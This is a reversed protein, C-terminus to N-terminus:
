YYGSEASTAIHSAFSRVLVIIIGKVLVEITVPQASSVVRVTADMWRDMGRPFGLENLLSLVGGGKKASLVGKKPEGDMTRFRDRLEKVEREKRLRLLKLFQRRDILGKGEVDLESLM